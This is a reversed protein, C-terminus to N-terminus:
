KSAFGLLDGYKVEDRAVRWRADYRYQKRGKADFGTAQLHGHPDACIWVNTWAPPLALKRIRELSAANTLWRGNAQRYAFGKGRRFRRIGADDCSVYHLSALRATRAPEPTTM